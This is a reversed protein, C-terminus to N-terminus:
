RKKIWQCLEENLLADYLAEDSIDLSALNMFGVNPLDDAMEELFGFERPNGVGIMQWYVPYGQAQRLAREAAARDSNAGDTVFLCLAPTTTDVAGHAAPALSAKGFLRGLLGGGSSAAPARQPDFYFQRVADIAPAYETGYWLPLSRNGLIDTKVFTEFNAPTASGAKACSNSFAWVDLEQNDDFKVAVGMLRDLTAQIVGGTFMHQASGSVDLTVGVRVPPISRINRKELIIGVKEARKELSIAM